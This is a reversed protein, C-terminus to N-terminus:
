HYIFIDGDWDDLEHIAATKGTRMSKTEQDFQLMVTGNSPPNYVAVGHTFKRQVAGNELSQMRGQPKGLPADWFTYWDHRHDGQPLENPDTFGCYGNSHTLTLTTIVRMLNKDAQRSQHFWSEVCNVVPKRLNKEAWLLTQSIVMWHYPTQSEYCEMFYGNILPAMEPEIRSNPNVILLADPGIAARIKQTLPKRAADDRWWDLMIGDFVGTEMIAKAQAAVHDQYGPKFYDLLMLQHEAYGVIFEGNEDKRWWPHDEPLYSTSADRYRLECLIVLNPNMALLEARKKRAKEISGPTFGTSLGYPVTDWELGYYGAGSWHMDHLALASDRNESIDYHGSWAAFVSPYDRSHIREDLDALQAYSNEQAGGENGKVGETGTNEPSNNCSALLVFAGIVTRKMIM